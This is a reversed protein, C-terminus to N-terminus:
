AAGSREAREKVGLLMRRDMAFGIPEAIWPGFRLRTALDGSARCRLRSVLRCRGEGTPEVLFLWSVAAHPGEDSAVFWHGPEIRTVRLAPLRPDVILDDGRQLEWEPHVREANVLDARFLHELWQYSYFGGRDAGIQAIWPWTDRASAEIAVAHTWSWDPDPILDDGPHIRAAEEATLGWHSRRGRRHPTLFAFAAVAAGGVGALVDRWDDPAVRGEVRAALHHLQAREM